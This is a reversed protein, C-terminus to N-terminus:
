GGILLGRGAFSDADQIFLDFSWAGRRLVELVGQTLQAVKQAIRV